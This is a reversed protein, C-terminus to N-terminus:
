MGNKVALTSYYSIFEGSSTAKASISIKDLFTAQVCAIFFKFNLTEFIM